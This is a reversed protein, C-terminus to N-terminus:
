RMRGFTLFTTESEVFESEMNIKNKNSVASFAVNQELLFNTPKLHRNSFTKSIFPPPKQVNTITKM